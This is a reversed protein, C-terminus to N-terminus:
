FINPRRNQAEDFSILQQNSIYQERIEKQHEHNSKIINERTEPHLLQGAIAVNVAADKTHFVPADYLPAIKLATHKDSTTAGGIFLPIKAGKEQLLNAVECMEQLSPTILGSLGIIDAQEKIATEVIQERPVMVGLDIIEYNNCAMIVSVINKGIDHVDGKVTAIVIKGNKSDSEQAKNQEIYPQLINVAQKMTRATKVVQPLFMKGEGFLTGVKNMGEMLPGEIISLANPFIHLAEQLDEELHSPIGKMLAYELRENLSLSRWADAKTATTNSQQNQITHALEVLEEAAHEHTNLIVAEVAKLLQPDIEEYVPLAGANVIAMDMGANIAHHLFVVHMAERVTNNGRFAFSLNSVGGSVKAHPLNEKIWQTARIFDIAYSNHAEIGTAVALINPDFIIDQPPFKLKETLLKYARECVEIKREYTDAQGQEDFAMVVTAAGLRRITEAHNLFVEEGEKLSISNVISKGQTCKLGAEIVQFNSSDLMLPVRAIEPESALLNIFHCMEEQTNLLGDDFNLDLIHAGDEVQKRAIELAEMYNKENILRLFKRSGAVNCREGVNIFLSGQAKNNDTM